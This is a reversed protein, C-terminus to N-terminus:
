RRNAKLREKLFNLEWQKSELEKELKEIDKEIFFIARLLDEKNNQQEMKM